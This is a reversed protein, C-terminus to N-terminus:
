VLKFHLMTTKFVVFQRECVSTFCWLQNFSQLLSMKM